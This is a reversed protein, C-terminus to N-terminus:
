MRTAPTLWTYVECNDNTYIHSLVNIITRPTEWRIEVIAKLNEEAWASAYCEKWAGYKQVLRNTYYTLYSKPIEKPFTKTTEAFCAIEALTDASDFRFRSAVTQAHDTHAYYLAAASSMEKLFREDAFAQMVERRPTEWTVGYHEGEFFTGGTRQPARTHACVALVLCLMVFLGGRASRKM